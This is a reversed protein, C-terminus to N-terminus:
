RKKIVFNKHGISKCLKVLKANTTLSISFDSFKVKIIKKLHYYNKHLLYNQLNEKLWHRNPIQEKYNGENM